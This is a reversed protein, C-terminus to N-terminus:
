RGQNKYTALIDDARMSLLYKKEDETKANKLLYEFVLEENFTSAVEAEFITYDYSLFPNNHVSYWSHMSHGGEHAMTFVDRIDDADYNLLIYPDGIYNGSSFAGSRKGVNEYRDVWGNLLGNCLRDTYEKGLPSLANRCIEVAKMLTDFDPNPEIGGFEIVSFGELAKMVQDYVGNKKISGGGYTMMIKEGKYMLESLKAISGKGFVIKTPNQFEFNNM